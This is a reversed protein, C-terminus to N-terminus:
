MAVQGGQRHGSSHQGPSQVPPQIRFVDGHCHKDGWAAKQRARLGQGADAIKYDPNLGQQSADLLHIGWTDADRHETAALLHCYTSRANVGALVPQSGQIIM